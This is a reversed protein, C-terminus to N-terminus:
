GFPSLLHYVRDRQSARAFFCPIETALWSFSAPWLALNNRNIHPSPRFICDPLLPLDSLPHSSLLLGVLASLSAIDIPTSGPFHQEDRKESGRSKMPAPPVLCPALDRHAELPLGHLRLPAWNVTRALVHLLAAVVAVGLNTGDLVVPSYPAACPTSPHSICPLLLQHRRQGWTNSAYSPSLSLRPPILPPTLALGIASDRIKWVHNLSYVCCPFSSIVISQTHM